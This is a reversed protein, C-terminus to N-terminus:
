QRPELLAVFGLTLWTRRADSREDYSVTANLELWDAGPRLQM